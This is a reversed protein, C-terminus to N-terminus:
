TVVQNHTHIMLAKIFAHEISELFSNPGFHSTTCSVFNVESIEKEVSKQRACDTSCPVSSRSTTLEIGLLPLKKNQEEGDINAPDQWSKAPYLSNYFFEM